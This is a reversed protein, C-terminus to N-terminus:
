KVECDGYYQEPRSTLGPLQVPTYEHRTHVALFRASKTATNFVTTVYIAGYADVQMFNMYNGIVRVTIHAKRTDNVADATGEEANISAFAMTLKAAMTTAEPRDATWTGSAVVPFECRITTANLLRSAPPNPVQVAGLPSSCVAVLTAAGLRAWM